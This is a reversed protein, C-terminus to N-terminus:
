FRDNHWDNKANNENNTEDSIQRHYQYSWVIPRTLLSKTKNLNNRAVMAFFCIAHKYQTQWQCIHNPYQKTNRKLCPTTVNWLKSSKLIVHEVSFLCKDVGKRPPYKPADKTLYFMTHFNRCLRESMQWPTESKNRAQSCRMRKRMLPTTLQDCCPIPHIQTWTKSSNILTNNLPVWLHLKKLILQFNVSKDVM